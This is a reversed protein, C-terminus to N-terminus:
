EHPAGAKPCNALSPLVAQYTKHRLHRPDACLSTNRVLYSLAFLGGFLCKDSVNRNM